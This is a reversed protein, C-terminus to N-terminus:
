PRLAKRTARILATFFRACDESRALELGKYSGDLLGHSADVMLAYREGFIGEHMLTDATEIVGDNPGYDSMSRRMIVNQYARNGRDIALGNGSPQSLVEVLLPLGKLRTLADSVLPEVRKHSLGSIPKLIPALTRQSEVWDAILSGRVLGSISVLGRVKGESGCVRMAQPRSGDEACIRSLATVTEAVGRSMAILLLKDGSALAGRLGREVLLSNEEVLGYHRTAVTQVMVGLARIDSVIRAETSRVSRPDKSEPSGVGFGPIVVVRLGKWERPDFKGDAGSIVSNLSRDFERNGPRSEIVQKFVEGAFGVGFREALQIMSDSDLHTWGSRLIWESASSEARYENAGQEIQAIAADLRSDTGHVPAKLAPSFKIERKFRDNRNWLVQSGNIERPMGREDWKVELRPIAFSCESVVVFFSLFLLNKM